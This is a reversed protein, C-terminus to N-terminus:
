DDARGYPQAFTSRASIPSANARCTKRPSTSIVTPPQPPANCRRRRVPQCMRLRRGNCSWHLSRVRMTGAQLLRQPAIAQFRPIRQQHVNENCVQRCHRSLVGRRKRIRIPESVQGFYGSAAFLKQLGKTKRKVFICGQGAPRCRDLLRACQQRQSRPSITSIAFGRSSRIPSVPQIGPRCRAASKWIRPNGPAARHINKM